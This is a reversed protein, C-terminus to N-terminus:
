KTKTKQKQEAIFKLLRTRRYTKNTLYNIYMEVDSISDWKFFKCYIYVCLICVLVHVYTNEYTSMEKKLKKKATKKTVKISNAM